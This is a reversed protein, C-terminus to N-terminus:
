FRRTLNVKLLKTM